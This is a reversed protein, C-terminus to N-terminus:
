AVPVDCTIERMGALWELDTLITGSVGAPDVTVGASTAAADVLGPCEAERRARLPDVGPYAGDEIEVTGLALLAGAACPQPLGANNQTELEFCTGAPIQQVLTWDGIVDRPDQDLTSGRLIAGNRTGLGCRVPGEITSTGSLTRGAFVFVYPLEAFPLGVVEDYAALCKAGFTSQVEETLTVGDFEPLLGVIELNHAESCRVREALQPNEVDEEVHCDGVYSDLGTREEFPVVDVDYPTWTSGAVTTAAETRTSSAGSSSSTAPDLPASSGSSSGGCGAVAVTLLVTAPM